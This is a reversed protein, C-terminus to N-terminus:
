FNNFVWLLQFSTVACKVEQLALLQKWRNGGSRLVAGSADQSCRFAASQLVALPARFHRFHEIAEVFSVSCPMEAGAGGKDSSSNGWNQKWRLLEYRLWGSMVLSMVNMSCKM